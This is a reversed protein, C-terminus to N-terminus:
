LCMTSSWDRISCALNQLFRDLPEPSSSNEITKVMFPCPPWKIIHDPNGTNIFVNIRVEWLHKRYFKAKFPWATESFFIKSCYQLICTYRGPTPAYWGRPDLNKVSDCINLGNAWKRCTKGKLRCKLLKGWEFAHAM